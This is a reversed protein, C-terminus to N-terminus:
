GLSITWGRSELQSRSYTRASGGDSPDLLFRYMDEQTSTRPFTGVAECPFFLGNGPVPSWQGALTSLTRGQGNQISSNFFLRLILIADDCDALDSDLVVEFLNLEVTVTTYPPGSSVILAVRDGEELITGPAPEQSLVVGEPVSDSPQATTSTELALGSIAGTAGRATEGVLNPVEKPEGRSVVLSVASGSRARAGPRPDQTSVEGRPVTDSFEEAVTIDTFGAKSLEVEAATLSLGSVDPVPRTLVLYTAGGALVFVVAIVAIAIWSGRRWAPKVPGVTASAGALSETSSPFVTPRPEVRPGTTPSQPQAGWIQMGPAPLALRCM